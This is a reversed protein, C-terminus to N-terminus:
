HLFFNMTAGGLFTISLTILVAQFLRRPGLEKLFIIFTAVCPFSMSLVVCAIMMQKATLKLPILMGAAIDKRLFGVILAWAAEKPLGFVKNLLPAFFQSISEFLEIQQLLNIILVSLLVIPLADVVFGKIRLFMKKFLLKFDPWRYPPIEIFLEPSYGKLLRNLAAGLFLWVSFLVLYVAIVYRAGFKGLMGFIMAQLAACPVGISIITSAIFRERKSELIRTAIIGPVNCGFGLLIPIIAFGHLGLRHMINDLLLALRPMYGIDELFSLLLYFAFIYPLVIVFEIYPATTLLGMSKEFDINNDIMRGLLINHLFPKNQLYISFSELVPKYVLQFFPELVYKILGEGLFRVTKFSFAIIFIAIAVGWAHNVSADELIEFLTHHRHSLQQVKDIIDGIKQWREQHTGRDLQGPRAEVLREKLQKIGLGTIGSTPVVGVGLLDELKEVDISIGRHKIDDFMNLAIIMPCRQELLTMTLYLNRELNTADVVNIVLDAEEIMKVAVEEAPANPELSYTGPLDLIKMQEGDINVYGELFEVTTGPYNSVLVRVGTLRSFLVSKGVNPNGILVLKKM